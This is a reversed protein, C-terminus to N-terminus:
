HSKFQSFKWFVTHVGLLILLYVPTARVILHRGNLIPFSNTAVLQIACLLIALRDHLHRHHSLIKYSMKIHHLKELQVFEFVSEKTRWGWHLLLTYIYLNLKYLATRRLKNNNSPVCRWYVRAGCTSLAYMSFLAYWPPASPPGTSVYQKDLTKGYGWYVM